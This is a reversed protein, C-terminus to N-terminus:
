ELSFETEGAPVAAQVVDQGQYVTFTFPLDSRIRVTEADGVLDLVGENGLPLNKVGYPQERELFRRWTVQRLPWDIFIGLIDELIM